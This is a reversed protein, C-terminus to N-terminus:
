MSRILHKIPSIAGEQMSAKQRMLFWGAGYKDEILYVILPTNYYASVADQVKECRTEDGAFVAAFMHDDTLYVRGTGGIAEIMAAILIAHDDCDGRLRNLTETPRQWHEEEPPDSVYEIGESVHDFISCVQYINYEGPHVTIGTAELGGPRLGYKYVFLDDDGRNELYIKM